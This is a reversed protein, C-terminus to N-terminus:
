EANRTLTGLDIEVDSTSSEIVSIVPGDPGLKMEYSRVTGDPLMAFLRKGDSKLETGAPLSDITITEDM